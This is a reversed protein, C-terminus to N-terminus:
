ITDPSEQSCMCTVVIHCQGLLACKVVIHCQGLFTCVSSLQTVNDWSHVCKVATHCQGLLVYVHCSHSLIEPVHMQCSHSM